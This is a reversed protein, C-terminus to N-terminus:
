SLFRLKHPDISEIGAIEFHLGTTGDAGLPSAESVLSFRDEKSSSSSKLLGKLLRAVALKDLAALSNRCNGVRQILESGDANESDKVFWAVNWESHIFASPVLNDEATNDELDPSDVDATPNSLILNKQQM